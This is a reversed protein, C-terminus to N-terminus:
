GRAAEQTAPRAADPRSRPADDYHANRAIEDALLDRLRALDSASLRRVDSKEAKALLTELERWAPERERRFEYSKLPADSM